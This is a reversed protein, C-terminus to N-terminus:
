DVTNNEIRNNASTMSPNWQEVQIGNGKSATSQDVSRNFCITSDSVGVLEIGGDGFHTITNGYVLLRRLRNAHIGFASKSMQSSLHIDNFTIELSAISEGDAGGMGIGYGEAGLVVNRSINVGSFTNTRAGSFWIGNRYGSLRNTVLQVMKYAGPGAGTFGYLMNGGTKVCVNNSFRVNSVSPNHNPYLQLCSASAETFGEGNSIQNGDVLSDDTDELNIDHPPGLVGTTISNTITNRVIEVANSMSASIAFDRAGQIENHDIRIREVRSLQIAPRGYWIWTDIVASDTTQSFQVTGYGYEVGRKTHVNSLRISRINVDHVNAAQVLPVAGPDGVLWSSRGEGQMTTSNPLRLTAQNLYTGSPFFLTGGSNSIARIANAIAASDNTGWYVTANEVAVVAAAALTVHAPDVVSSILTVLNSGSPGAGIVLITKGQDAPVFEYSLSALVTSGSAIRGDSVQKTDGKAGFGKVNSTSAQLISGGQVCVAIVLGTFRLVPIFKATKMDCVKATLPVASDVGGANWAFENRRVRKM